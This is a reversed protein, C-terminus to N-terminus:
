ITSIKNVDFKKCTLVEFLENQSNQTFHLYSFKKKQLIQPAGVLTGSTHSQGTQFCSQTSIKNIDIKQMNPTQM